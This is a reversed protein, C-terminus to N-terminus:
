LHCLDTSHVSCVYTPPLIYMRQLAWVPVAVSKNIDRPLWQIPQYPEGTDLKTYVHRNGLSIWCVYMSIGCVHGHMRMTGWQLVVSCNVSRNEDHWAVDSPAM